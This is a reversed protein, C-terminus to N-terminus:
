YTTTPPNRNTFMERKQARQTEGEVWLKHAKRTSPGNTRVCHWRSSHSMRFHCGVALFLGLRALARFINLESVDRPEAACAGSLLHGLSAM